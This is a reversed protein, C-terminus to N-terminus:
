RCMTCMTCMTCATRHPSPAKTNFHDYLAHHHQWPESLVLKLVFSSLKRVTIRGIQMFGTSAKRATLGTLWFHHVMMWFILTVVKYLFSM